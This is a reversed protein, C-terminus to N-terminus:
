RARLHSRSFSCATIGERRSTQWLKEWVYEGLDWAVYLCLAPLDLQAPRVLLAQIGALNTEACSGTPLGRASLDLSTLRQVVQEAKPGVLGIGAFACTVDTQVIALESALNTFPTDLGAANIRMALLLLHEDTLRCALVTGGADHVAVGRPRVAPSKGLVDQVLVRLKPGRLSLKAYASLDVLGVGNQAALCEAETDSTAPDPVLWGDRPVMTTGRAEQWSHLPTRGLPFSTTM